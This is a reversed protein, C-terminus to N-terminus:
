FFKNLGNVFHSKKFTFIKNSITITLLIGWNGLNMLKAICDFQNGLWDLRSKKIRHPMTMNLCHGITKSYFM